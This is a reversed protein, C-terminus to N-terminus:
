HVWAFLVFGLAAAILAWRGWVYALCFFLAAGRGATRKGQRFARLYGASDRWTNAGAQKIGQWFAVALALLLGLLVLAATPSSIAKTLAAM